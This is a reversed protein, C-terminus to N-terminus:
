DTLVKDCIDLLGFAFPNLVRLLEIAGANHNVECFQLSVISGGTMPVLRVVIRSHYNGQYSGELLFAIFIAGFDGLGWICGSIATRSKFGPLKIIKPLQVSNTADHVHETYLMAALISFPVAPHIHGERVVM